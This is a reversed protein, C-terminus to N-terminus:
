PQVLALAARVTARAEDFKSDQLEHAGMVSHAVRLAAVLEPHAELQRTATSLADVYQNDAGRHEAQFNASALQVAHLPTPEARFRAYASM